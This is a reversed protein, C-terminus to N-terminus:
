LKVWTARECEECLPIGDSSLTCLGREVYETCDDPYAPREVPLNNEKAWALADRIEPNEDSAEGECAITWRERPTAARMRNHLYPIM